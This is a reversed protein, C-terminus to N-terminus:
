HENSESPIIQSKLSDFFYLDFVIQQKCNMPLVEIETATNKSWSRGESARRQNIPEVFMSDFERHYAAFDFLLAVQATTVELLSFSHM